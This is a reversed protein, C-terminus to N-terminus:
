CGEEDDSDDGGQDEGGQCVPDDVHILCWNENMMDINEGDGDDADDSKKEDAKQSVLMSMVVRTAIVEKVLSKVDHGHSMKPQAAQYAIASLCFSAVLVLFTSNNRLHSDKRFSNINIQQQRIDM